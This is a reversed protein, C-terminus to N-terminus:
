WQMKCGPKHAGETLKHALAGRHKRLDAQANALGTRNEDLERKYDAFRSWDAYAKKSVIKGKEVLRQLVRQINFRDNRNKFGLALNEFDVLVALSSVDPM